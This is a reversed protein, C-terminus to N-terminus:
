RTQQSRPLVAATYARCGGGREREEVVGEVTTWLTGVDKSLALVVLDLRFLAVLFIRRAEVGARVPVNTSGTARGRGRGGEVEADVDEGGDFLTALRRVGDFSLFTSFFPTL